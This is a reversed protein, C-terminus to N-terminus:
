AHDSQELGKKLTYINNNARCAAQEPLAELRDLRREIQNRQDLARTGPRQRSAARKQPRRLGCLLRPAKFLLCLPYLLSCRTELKTRQARLLHRRHHQPILLCLLNDLSQACRFLLLLILILLTYQELTHARSRSSCTEGSITPLANSATSCIEPATAATTSVGSYKFHRQCTQKRSASRM